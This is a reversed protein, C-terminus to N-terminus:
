RWISFIIMPHFIFIIYFLIDSPRIYALGYVDVFIFLHILEQIMITCIMCLYSGLVNTKHQVHQTEWSELVMM